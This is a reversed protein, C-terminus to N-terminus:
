EGRNREFLNFLNYRIEIDKYFITFNDEQKIFPSLVYDLEAGDVFIASNGDNLTFQIIVAAHMQKNQM